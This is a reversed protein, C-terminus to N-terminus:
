LEFWTRLKKLVGWTQKSGIRSCRGNEDFYHWAGNQDVTLCPRSPPQGGSLAFYVDLKEFLTEPEYSITISAEGDGHGFYPAGSYAIIFGEESIRGYPDNDFSISEVSGDPYGIEVEITEFIPKHEFRHEILAQTYLSGPEEVNVCRYSDHEIFM